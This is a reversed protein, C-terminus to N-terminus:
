DDDQEGGAQRWEGPTPHDEEIEHPVVVGMLKLQRENVELKHLLYSRLAPRVVELIEEEQYRGHFTVGLHGGNARDLTVIGLEDKLKKRVRMLENIEILTEPTQLVAGENPDAIKKRAM